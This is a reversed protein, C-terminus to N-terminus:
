TKRVTMERLATLLSMRPPRSGESRSRRTRAGAPAPETASRMAADLSTSSSSPPPFSRLDVPAAVEQSTTAEETPPPPALDDGEALLQVGADSVGVLLHRDGARVVVVAAAKTLQRRDVVALRDGIGARGGTLMTGLRGASARTFLWLLVGVIAFSAVVRLFTIM